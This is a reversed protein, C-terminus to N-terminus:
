RIRGEPGAACIDAEIAKKEAERGAYVGKQVDRYFQAIGAHSYVRKEDQASTVNQSRQTGPAAMSMLDVKPEAPVEPTAENTVVANENLYGKFFALVRAADNAEFAQTLLAGRQSGSLVDTGELWELFASDTNIEKWNPVELNLSRYLLERANGSVSESVGGLMDKLRSNEEQLQTVLPMFEERAARKVVDIMDSGYDEIEDDKLLKEGPKTEVPTNVTDLSSLLKRMTNVENTLEKVQSNLQPVEKNYKGQLVKYRQEFKDDDTNGAAEMPAAPSLDGGENTEPKAAPEDPKTSKDIDAGPLDNIADIDTVEDLTAGQKYVQAHLKNAEEIQKQVATPAPM